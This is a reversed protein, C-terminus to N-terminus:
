PTIPRKGANRIANYIANIDVQSESDLEVVLRNEKLYVECSIKGSDLAEIHTKVSRACGECKMGEVKIEFRKM